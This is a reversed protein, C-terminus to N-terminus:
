CCCIFCGCCSITCCSRVSPDTHSRTFGDPMTPRKSGACSRRCGTPLGDSTTAALLSCSKLSGTPQMVNVNFNVSRLGSSRSEIRSQALPRVSSVPVTSWRVVTLRRMEWRCCCCCSCCSHSVGVVVFGSSQSGIRSQALLRTSSVLETHWYTLLKYLANVTAVEFASSTSISRSTFINWIVHSFLYVTHTANLLTRFESSRKLYISRCSWFCQKWLNDDQRIDPSFFFCLM